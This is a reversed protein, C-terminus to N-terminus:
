SANRRRAAGRGEVLEGADGAADADGSAQLLERLAAFRADGEEGEGALDGALGPCDERCHPAMPLALLIAQRLSESLDILHEPSITFYDAEEPNDAEPALAVGTHIDVTPRYQDAFEAEVASDFPELCRMCELTVTAAVRGDALIGAPIRTLRVEARADRATLDGDLPLAALELTRQRTAGVPEQLFQAVHITADGGGDAQTGTM